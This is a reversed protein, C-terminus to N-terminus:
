MEEKLHFQRVTFGKVHVSHIHQTYLRLKITADLLKHQLSIFIHLTSNPLPLLLERQVWMRLRAARSRCLKRSSRSRLVCSQSRSCTWGQFCVFPSSCPSSNPDPLPSLMFVDLFSHPVFPLCIASSTLCSVCPQYTAVTPPLNKCLKASTAWLTPTRWSRFLFYVTWEAILSVSLLLQEGGSETMNLVGETLSSWAARTREPRFLEVPYLDPSM